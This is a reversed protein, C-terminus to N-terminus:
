LACCTGSGGILALVAGAGRSPRWLLITGSFAPLLFPSGPLLGRGDKGEKTLLPLPPLPLQLRPMEHRQKEREGSRALACHPPTKHLSLGGHRDLCPAQPRPSPHPLTRGRRDDGVQDPIWPRQKIYPCAGTGTWALRRRAHSRGLDRFRIPPRPSDSRLSNRLGLSRCQPLAGRLAVGPRGHNQTRKGFCFSRTTRPRLGALVTGKRMNGFPFRYTVM